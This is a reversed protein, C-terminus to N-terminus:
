LQRVPVVPVPVAVVEKEVAVVRAVPKKTQGFLTTYALGLNFLIIPLTWGYQGLLGTSTTSLPSYQEWTTANNGLGTDVGVYKAYKGIHRDLGLARLLAPLTILGSLIAGLSLLAATIIAGVLFPVAALATKEFVHVLNQARPRDLDSTPPAVKDTYTSPFPIHNDRLITEACLKSGAIAIPVQM